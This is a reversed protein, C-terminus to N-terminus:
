TRWPLAPTQGDPLLTAVPTAAFVAILEMPQEGTNFLQHDRGGPLVVTCDSGSRRVSGESHVEGQGQLCM